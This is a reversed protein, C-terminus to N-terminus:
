KAYDVVAAAVMALLQEQHQQLAAHREESAQLQRAAAAAEGALAQLTGECHQVEEWRGKLQQLTSPMRGAAEPVAQLAHLFVSMLLLPQPNTCLHSPQSAVVPALRVTADSGAVRHLGSPAEGPARPM